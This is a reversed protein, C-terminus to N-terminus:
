AESKMSHNGKDNAFVPKKKKEQFSFGLSPWYKEM